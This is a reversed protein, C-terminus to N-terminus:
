YRTNCSMDVFSIGQLVLYVLLIFWAIMYYLTILFPAQCWGFKRTECYHKVVFERTVIRNQLLRVNEM